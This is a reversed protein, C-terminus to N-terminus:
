KIEKAIVNEGDFYAFYVEILKDYDAKVVSIAGIRGAVGKSDIFFFTGQSPLPVGEEANQIKFYYGFRM